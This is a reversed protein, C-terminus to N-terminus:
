RAATHLTALSIRDLMIYNSSQKKGKVSFCFDLYVNQNDRAAFAATLSLNLPFALQLSRFTLTGSLLALIM